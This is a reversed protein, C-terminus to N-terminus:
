DDIEEVDDEVDKDGIIERYQKRLDSMTQKTKEDLQWFTWGNQGNKTVKYTAKSLSDFVEGGVSIRGDDLIQATQGSASLQRPYLTQGSSVLGASILDIVEVKVQKENSEVAVVSKHGIPVPWIESISQVLSATRGRILDEDWGQQGIELLQRNILMVDHKKLEDTKAMWPRNSVSSNLKTTLLTLNGITHILAEREDETQNDLPWNGRWGQPMIHEIAYSGRKVRVGSKSTQNGIWGRTHDEIAELIMRIRSRYLNKYIQRDSLQDKLEADDPWYSSNSSQDAFFKELKTGANTRDKNVIRVMEVVLKNYNKNTARVLLRRVMWSEIVSVAKELQDQPIDKETPDILTILIPRLVDLDMSNLRYAFLEVRTLLGEKTESAAIVEKYKSGAIHLEELLQLMGMRSEHDAYHKFSSFIERNLVEEGTKAILWHNIFLSSRQFKVRGYSIEKEWFLTEFEKWFKLYADEVDVKTENLRQFVFNKILDAATLVAGRANLTEFIEQANENVALDIVVIQLLERCCLDLVEARQQVEAEGNEMLWEHASESFFKHALAMKSKSYKLNEYDVPFPAALVENFAPRDKNTPWVKFKDEPQNCSDDDNEILKRLRGAPRKAGLHELQAHIADFMLQLTTLRQQGDIVTRRQMEGISNQVQQVVVAGLFHPQHAAEPQALFRTLVRKIDRWMPEWQLEQNWVYPRQFLPVLLRQQASFIDAPTHTDTKV